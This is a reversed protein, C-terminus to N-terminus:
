SSHAPFPVFPSAPEGFFVPRLRSLQEHAALQGFNALKQLHEVRDLTWSADPLPFDVRHLRDPGMLYRAATHAGQAQALLTVELIRPGWWALGASSAPPELSFRSEGTGVSLMVVDDATFRRDIGERTCRSSIRLAEAYAVVSPNNAWIGGDCFASGSSISKHPSYTPAASTSLAAHVASYHRDRTAADPLHPTKLVVVRGAALDVTPLVLRTQADGIKREGLVERLAAELPGAGYKPQLLGHVDTGRQALWDDFLWRAVAALWRHWRRRITERSLQQRGFIERGREQYMRSVDKAPVGLALATAIIGGTSTGVILDFYQGLPGGVQDELTALFEASFAGRIGGGDL